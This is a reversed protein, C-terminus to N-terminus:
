DTLHKELLCINIERGIRILKKRLQRIIYILDQTSKGKGFVHQRDELAIKLKEKLRKEPIRTPLKSTYQERQLKFCCWEIM